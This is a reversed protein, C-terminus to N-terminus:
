SASCTATIGNGSGTGQFGFSTSQGASLQNNYGASSVTVTGTTGSAQGNWANTIATGGPLALTVKWSTVPAAAAVTVAGVYGGTWSSSLSYTATCGGADVGAPTTVVAVPTTVVAVPTTPVAPRTIVVPASTTPVM